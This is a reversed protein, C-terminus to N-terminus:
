APWAPLTPERISALDGTIESGAPERMQSTAPGVHTVAEVAQRRAHLADEVVIREAAMQEDEASAAAIHYFQQPGVHIPEAQEDFEEFMTVEDTLTLRAGYQRSNIPSIWM